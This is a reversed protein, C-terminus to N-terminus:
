LQLKTIGIQGILRHGHGLDPQSKGAIGILAALAKTQNILLRRSGGDFECRVGKTAPQMHIRTTIGHVQVPSGHLTQGPNAGAISQKDIAL